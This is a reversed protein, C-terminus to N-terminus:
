TRLQRTIQWRYSLTKHWKNMM